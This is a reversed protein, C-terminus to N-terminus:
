EISGGKNLRPSTNEWRQYRKGASSRRYENPSVGYKGRFLAGMHSVTGLGSAAAIETISLMSDDLLEVAKRLRTDRLFTSFTMGTMRHFIRSLYSPTVFLREAVQSLTINEGCHTEIFRRANETLQEPATRGEAAPFAEQAELSVLEILADALRRCVSIASVSGSRQKEEIILCTSLLWRCLDPGADVTVAEVSAVGGARFSVLLFATGCEPLIREDCGPPLLVPSLPTLEGGDALCPLLLRSYGSGEPILGSSSIRTLPMGTM